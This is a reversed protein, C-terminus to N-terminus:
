EDGNRAWAKLVDAIANLFQRDRERRERERALQAEIVARLDHTSGALLEVSEALAKHREEQNDM